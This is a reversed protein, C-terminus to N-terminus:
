KWFCTAYWTEASLQAVSHAFSLWGQESIVAKGELPAVDWAAQCGAGEWLWAGDVGSM